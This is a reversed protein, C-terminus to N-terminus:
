LMEGRAHGIDYAANGNNALYLRVSVEYVFRLLAVFRIMFRRM